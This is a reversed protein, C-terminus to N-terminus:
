IIFNNFYPWLAQMELNNKAHYSLFFTQPLIINVTNSLNSKYKKLSILGKKYKNRYLDISEHSEIIPPILLTANIAYRIDDKNIAFVKKYYEAANSIDGISKLLYALNSLAETYDPKIKLAHKYNAIADNINGKGASIVALNNLADTHNPDILLLDRYTNTAEDFKNQKALSTAVINYLFIENPYEKLLEKGFNELKILQGTNLLKILSHIYNQDLKKM